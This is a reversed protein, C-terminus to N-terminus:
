LTQPEIARLILKLNFSNSCVYELQATITNSSNFLGDRRKSATNFVAPNLFETNEAMYAATFRAPNLLNALHNVPLFHCHAQM